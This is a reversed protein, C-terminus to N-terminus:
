ARNALSLQDFGCSKVCPGLDGPVDTLGPHGEPWPPNGRSLLAVGLGRPGSGSDGLLAPGGWPGELGCVTQCPSSNSGAPGQVRARTELSMLDVVRARPCSRKDGPVAPLARPCESELTHGGPCSTSMSLRQVRAETALSIQNFGRARPGPCSDEQISLRDRPGESWHRTGLVAPLCHLGESRARFRRPCSTSGAPGRVHARIAASYQDVGCAM